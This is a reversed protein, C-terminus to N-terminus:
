ATPRATGCRTCEGAAYSGALTWDRCVACVWPMIVPAERRARYKEIHAPLPASPDHELLPGYNYKGIEATVRERQAASAGSSPM